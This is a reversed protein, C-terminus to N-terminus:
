VRRVTKESVGVSLAVAAPTGGERLLCLIRRYVPPQQHMLRQWEGKSRAGPSRPPAKATVDRQDAAAWGEVSRERNVNYKQAVLRQRVTEVVKNRALLTLFAVLQAPQDFPRARDLSAFFSAWIDQVFDQSDFKPRLAPNLRRRVARLLYPGYGETLQRAAEQDGALVRQMVDHFQTGGDSM